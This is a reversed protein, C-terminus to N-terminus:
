QSVMSAQAGGARTSAVSDAAPNVCGSRCTSSPMNESNRAETQAIAPQMLARMVDTVRWAEVACEQALARAMRATRMATLAASLDTEGLSYARWSQGAAASQTRAAEDLPAWRARATRWRAAFEEYRLRALQVSQLRASEALRALAAARDAEAALRRSPLPVAFYVGAIREVGGRERAYRLGVSPDPFREARAREARARALDAALTAAKIAPDSPADFAIVERAPPPDAPDFTCTRTVGRAQLREQAGRLEGAAGALAAQVAAREAGALAVELRAAEGVAHRREVSRELDLASRLEEEALAQRAAAGVCRYWDDLIDIAIGRRVDALLAQARALEAEGVSRDLRRKGPLRVAHELSVEWERYDREGSVDRSQTSTRALWGQPTSTEIRSQAQAEEVQAAAMAVDPAADVAAQLDAAPLAPTSAAIRATLLLPIAAILLRLVARNM